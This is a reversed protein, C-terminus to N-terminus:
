SSNAEARLRDAAILDFAADVAVGGVSIAASRNRASALEERLDAVSWSRHHRLRSGLMQIALPLYGAMEVLSLVDDRNPDEIGAVRPSCNLRRAPLCRKWRCSLPEM